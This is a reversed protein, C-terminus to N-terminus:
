ERDTEGELLEKLKDFPGAEPVPECRCPAENLNQGCTACMGKCDPKCLTAMPAHVSVQQRVFEGADLVYDEIASEEPSERDVTEVDPATTEAAFEEAIPMDLHQEVITLCRVCTTRIVAHLTGRVLLLSGTNLVTIDGTVPGVVTVGDVPEITEEIRYRGHAGPVEAVNALDIRM